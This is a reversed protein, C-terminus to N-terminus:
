FLFFDGLEIIPTAPSNKRVRQDLCYAYPSIVPPCVWGVVSAEEVAQYRALGLLQRAPRLLHFSDVKVAPYTLVPTNARAQAALSYVISKTYLSSPLTLYVLYCLLSLM